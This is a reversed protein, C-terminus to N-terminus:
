QDIGRGLRRCFVGTQPRGDPQALANGGGLPRLTAGADASAAGRSHCRRWEEGPSVSRFVPVYAGRPVDILVADSEGQGQYDQELARRLRGALIRVIPDLNPDFDAKRGLVQTAVTYGKIDASEGALTKEVIFRLFNQRKPSNVFQPSTLIKELQQRISVETLSPNAGSGPPLQNSDEAAM